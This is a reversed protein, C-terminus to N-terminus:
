FESGVRLPSTTFNICKTEGVDAYQPRETLTRRAGRVRPVNAYLTHMAHESRVPRVDAYTSFKQAHVFPTHSLKYLLPRGSWTAM